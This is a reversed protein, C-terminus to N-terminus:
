GLRKHLTKFDTIIESIDVTEEIKGRNTGITLEVQKNTIEPWESISFLAKTFDLSDINLPLLVSDDAVRGKREPYSYEYMRVSERGLEFVKGDIHAQIRTVTIPLKSNNVLEMMVFSYGGNEENCFAFPISLALNKRNSLWDRLANWISLACGFVAIAFTINDKSLVFAM